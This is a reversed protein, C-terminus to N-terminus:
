KELLNGYIIENITRLSLMLTLVWLFRESCAEGSMVLLRRGIFSTFLSLVFIGTYIVAIIPM